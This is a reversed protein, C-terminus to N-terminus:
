DLFTIFDKYEPKIDDAHQKGVFFKTNTWNNLNSKLSQLYYQGSIEFDIFALLFPHLNFLRKMTDLLFEQLSTPVNPNDSWHKPELQFAHELTATYFSIDFWNFGTEIPNAERINFQKFPLQIDNITLIGKQTYNDIDVNVDEFNDNYPGSINDLSWFADNYTKLPITDVTPSVQICLEYFGGCRIEKKLFLNKPDTM